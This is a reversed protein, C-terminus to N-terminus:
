TVGALACQAPEAARSRRLAGAPKGGCLGAICNVTAGSADFARGLLPIQLMQPEHLFNSAAPV